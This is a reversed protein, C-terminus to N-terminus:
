PVYVESVELVIKDLLKVKCLIRYESMRAIFDKRETKVPTIKIRDIIYYKTENTVLLKKSKIEENHIYFGSPLDDEADLELEKIRDVDDFTIWECEDVYLYNDANNFSLVYGLIEDDILNIVNLNSEKPQNSCSVFLFILVMILLIRKM